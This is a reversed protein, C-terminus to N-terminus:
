LHSEDYLSELASTELAARFTPREFRKVTALKSKTIILETSLVFMIQISIGRKKHTVSIFTAYAKAACTHAEYSWLEIIGLM